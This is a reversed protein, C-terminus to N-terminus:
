MSHSFTSPEISPNTLFIKPICCKVMQGLSTKVTEKVVVNSRTLRSGRRPFCPDDFCSLEFHSNVGRSSFGHRPLPCVGCHSHPDVGFHRPV